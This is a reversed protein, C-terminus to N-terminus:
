NVVVASRTQLKEERSARTKWTERHLEWQRAMTWVLFRPRFELVGAVVVVVLLETDGRLLAFETSGSVGSM